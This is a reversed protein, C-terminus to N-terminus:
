YRNKFEGFVVVHSHTLMFLYKLSNRFMKKAMVLLCTESLVQLIVMNLRNFKATFGCLTFLYINSVCDDDLGM